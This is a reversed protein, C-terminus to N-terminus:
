DHVKGQIHHSLRLNTRQYLEKNTDITADHLERAQRQAARFRHQTWLVGLILGVVGDLYEM